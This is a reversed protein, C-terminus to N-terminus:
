RRAALWACIPRVVDTESERGLLVDAHAYDARSGHDRGLVLWRREASGVAEWAGRASWLPVVGDGAAALSLVPVRVRGLLAGLGDDGRGLALDGTLRWGLLAAAEDLPIDEVAEAFYARLVEPTCGGPVFHSRPALLPALPRTLTALRSVPVARPGGEAAFVRALLREGLARARTSKRPSHHGCGFGPTCLTVIARVAGLGGDPATGAALLALLGGLSHGVLAVRQGGSAERVAALLAPVDEALKHAPTWGAARGSPGRASRGGRLEGLWVDWGEAALRWPLGVGPLVGFTFRNAGM